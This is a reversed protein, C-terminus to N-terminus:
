VHRSCPICMVHARFVCSTLVSYVHRSCPICIVHLICMVDLIPWFTHSWTNGCPPDNLEGPSKSSDDCWQVCSVSASDRVDHCAPTQVSWWSDAVHKGTSIGSLQGSADGLLQLLLQTWQHGAKGTLQPEGNASLYKSLYKSSGVERRRATNTTTSMINHCLLPM